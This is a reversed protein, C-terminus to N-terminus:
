LNKLFSVPKIKCSGRRQFAKDSGPYMLSGQIRIMVGNELKVVIL